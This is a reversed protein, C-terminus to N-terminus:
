LGDRAETQVDSLVEALLSKIRFETVQIIIGGKQQNTQPLPVTHRSYHAGRDSYYPYLGPDQSRACGRM